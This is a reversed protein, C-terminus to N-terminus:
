WSAISSASGRSPQIYQQRQTVRQRETKNTKAETQSAPQKPPQRAPQHGPQQSAHQSARQTHTHTHTANSARKKDRAQQNNAQSDTHASRGPQKTEQNSAQCAPQSIQQKAQFKRCSEEGAEKCRETGTNPSHKQSNSTRIQNKQSKRNPFAIDRNSGMKSRKTRPQQGAQLAGHIHIATPMIDQSKVKTKKKELKKKPRQTPGWVSGLDDKM